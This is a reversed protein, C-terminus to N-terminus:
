RGSRTLLATWRHAHGHRLHGSLRSRASNVSTHDARSGLNGTLASDNTNGAVASGGAAQRHRAQQARGHRQAQRQRQTQRQSVHRPATTPAPGPAAVNLKLVFADAIGGGYAPQLAGSTRPFDRSDTVGTLYASGSTDVAIGDGEDYAGGGLYTSYVLAGGDPALETVYADSDGGYYAAQFAGATVPFNRSSTAGTVFTDGSADVAIGDGQDDGSGGLYTSYVLAGGDPDLATVFADIYGGGFTAQVAGSTHPYDTSDTAGTVYANGSSGVTIEYGLESGTGGLYTSYVLAGDAPALKTVFADLAGALTGQYAGATTPFDSSATLGTLYANGSADVAIGDAETYDGGGLYRSYALTGGTPDLKTAFADTGGSMPPGTTRPFDGSYTYGAVYADGSADVGIGDAQDNETGGLYTSYALTGGTPDLKTVFADGNGRYTTQVAGATTPFDDSETEGTVYAAGASDVAIGIGLDEGRGGLYTSYLAATGTPDLKTVFADFGGRRQPQFARNVPFDTSDTDGIVYANGTADVAIGNGEDYGTGGLYTSYDIRPDVILPRGRDHDGIAFGVQDTGALTFRAAVPRPGGDVVQYARPARQVVDGLATPMVLDGGGTLRPRGRLGGIAFRVTGPDVGPAVTVDYELGQRTGYWRLDVGRYVGRETVDRYTPIGTRWAARDRGRLYDVRGALPSGGTIAPAAAAGAPRFSLVASADREPRRLHRTRMAYARGGVKAPAHPTLTVVTRDATVFVGFGPGHALYRVGAAAQGRNPEFALPLRGYATAVRDKATAVERGATPSVGSTGLAPAPVLGAWLLSGSAAILGATWARRGRRGGPGRKM